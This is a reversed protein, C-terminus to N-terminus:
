RQSRRRSRTASKRTASKPAALDKAVTAATTEAAVTAPERPVPAPAAVPPAPAPARVQTAAVPLAPPAADRSARVQDPGKLWVATAVAVMVVLGVVAALRMRTQQRRRAELVQPPLEWPAPPVGRKQLWEERSM